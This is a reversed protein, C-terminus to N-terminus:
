PFEQSEVKGVKYVVCNDGCLLYFLICVSLSNKILKFDSHITPISKLILQM